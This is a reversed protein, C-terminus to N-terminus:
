GPKGVPMIGLPIESDPLKLVDKVRDDYFAGIFVTGLELSVAQLYVNQGAHGLEMHVYQVGRKGYKVTTREYVATFVLVMAGDKVPSQGLAASALESRLDGGAIKVLNHTQPEYKYLGVPLDTVDGAVLYVELPYLAGASPATRYGQESTIGQAAWLLQSVEKLSLPTDQYKRISRRQELAKEVSVPGSHSPAPLTISEERGDHPFMAIGGTIIALVLGICNGIIIGKWTIM